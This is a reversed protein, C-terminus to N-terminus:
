VAIVLLEARCFTRETRVTDAASLLSLLETLARLDAMVSASTHWGTSVVSTMRRYGMKSSSSACRSSSTSTVWDLGPSCHRRLCNRYRRQCSCVWTPRTAEFFSMQPRLSVPINASMPLTRTHHIALLEHRLWRICIALCTSALTSRHFVNRQISILHLLTLAYSRVVIVWLKSPSFKSSGLISAFNEAPQNRTLVVIFPFNLCHTPLCSLKLASTKWKDELQSTSWRSATSYRLSVAPLSRCVCCPLIM